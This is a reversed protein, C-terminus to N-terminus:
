TSKFAETWYVQMYLEAPDASISEIVTLSKRNEPVGTYMEKISVPVVVEKGGPCGIRAGKEDMNRIYAGSSIGTYELAPRYENEFWDFLDEETHM